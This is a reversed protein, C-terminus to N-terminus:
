LVEQFHPIHTNKKQCLRYVVFRICSAPGSSKDELLIEFFPCTVKLVRKLCGERLSLKHNLDSIETAEGPCKPSM